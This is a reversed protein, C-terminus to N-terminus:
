YLVVSEFRCAASLCIHEVDMAPVTATKNGGILFVSRPAEQPHIEVPYGSRFAKGAQLVQWELVDGIEFTGSAVREEARRIDIRFFSARCEPKAGIRDLFPGPFSGSSAFLIRITYM